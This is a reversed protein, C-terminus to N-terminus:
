SARILVPGGADNKLQLDRYRVPRTPSIFGLQAGAAGAITWDGLPSEFEWARLPCSTRLTAGVLRRDTGALMGGSPQM